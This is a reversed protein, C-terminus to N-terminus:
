AGRPPWGPAAPRSPAAPTAARCASCFTNTRKRTAVAGGRAGERALRAGRTAPGHGAGGHRGPRGVVVQPRRAVAARNRGARARRAVAFAERGLSRCRRAGHYLARRARAGVAAAGVAAVRRRPPRRGRTADKNALLAGAHVAAQAHVDGDHAGERQIRPRRRLRREHGGCAVRNGIRVPLCCQRRAEHPRRRLLHIPPSRRLQLCENPAFVTAREHPRPGGPRGLGAASRRLPQRRRQRRVRRRRRERRALRQRRQRFSRGRRRGADSRHYRKEFVVSHRTPRLQRRRRQRRRLRQRRGAEM